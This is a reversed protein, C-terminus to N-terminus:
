KGVAKMFSNLDLRSLKLKAAIEEYLRIAKVLKRADGRAQKKGNAFRALDEAIEIEALSQCLLVADHDDLTKFEAFYIFRNYYHTNLKMVKERLDQMGILVVVAVTNDAIDRLMGIIEEHPYHIINDIEDILIVPMHIRTTNRNLVDLVDGFIRAKHGTIPTADEPMYRARVARYLDVVFSKPTSAKLASLYVCDHDIAYRMSFQTKGLGPKGFIMGMGVQHAVPRGLLYSMCELGRKVNKTQVLLHNKM